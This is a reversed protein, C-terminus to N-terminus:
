GAFLNQVYLRRPLRKKFFLSRVYLADEESEKEDRINHNVTIVHLAINQERAIFALSVFMSVSDAGGSVAVGLSISSAQLSAADFASQSSPTNGEHLVSQAEPSAANFARFPLPKVSSSRAGSSFLAGGTCSHLSARVREIFDDIFHEDSAIDSKM